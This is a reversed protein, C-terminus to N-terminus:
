LMEMEFLHRLDSDPRSLNKALAKLHGVVEERLSDIDVGVDLQDPNEGKVTLDAMLESSITMQGKPTAIVVAIAGVVTDPTNM